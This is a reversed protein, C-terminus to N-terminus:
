PARVAAHPSTQLALFWASVTATLLVHVREADGGKETKVREAASVAPTM